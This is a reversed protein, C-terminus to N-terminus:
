SEERGRPQLRLQIPEAEIHDAVTAGDPVEAMGLGLALDPGTAEAAGGM